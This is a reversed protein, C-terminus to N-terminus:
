ALVWPALLEIRRADVDVLGVFPERLPVNYVGGDTARVELMDDAGSEWVAIVEAVVTESAGAGAEAVFLDCGVLDSVYFEDEARPAGKERPVWLECRLLAAAAERTDVGRFKVIAETHAPRVQEIELLRPVDTPRRCRLTVEALAALHALEGSYPTVKVEGATGHARRVFGVALEEM